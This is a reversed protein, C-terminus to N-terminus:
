NVRLALPGGAGACVEAPTRAEGEPILRDLTRFTAEQVRRLLEMEAGALPRDLGLAEAVQYLVEALRALGLTRAVRSVQTTARAIEKRPQVGLGSELRLHLDRFRERFGELLDRWLEEDGDFRRVAAGKEVWAGGSRDGPISVRDSNRSDARGPSRDALSRRVASRGLPWELERLSSISRAEHIRAPGSSVLVIRDVGITADIAEVLAALALESGLLEPDLYVRRIEQEAALTSCLHRLLETAGGANLSHYGALDLEARLARRVHASRHAILVIESSHGFADVEPASERSLPLSVSTQGRTDLEISGGIEAVLERMERLEVDGGEAGLRQPSRTAPPVPSVEFDFRVGAIGEEAAYDHGVFV